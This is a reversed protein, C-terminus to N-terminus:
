WLRWPFARRVNSISAELGEIEIVAFQRNVFQPSVIGIVAPSTVTV